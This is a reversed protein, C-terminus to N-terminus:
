PVSTILDKLDGLGRRGDAEEGRALRDRSMPGPTHAVDSAPTYIPGSPDSCILGPLGDLVACDQPGSPDIVFAGQFPVVIQVGQIM